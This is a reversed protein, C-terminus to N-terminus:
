IPEEAASQRVQAYDVTTVCVQGEALILAVRSGIIRTAVVPRGDVLLQRQDTRTLKAQGIPRGDLDTLAVYM